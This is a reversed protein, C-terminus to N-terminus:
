NRPVEQADKCTSGTPSPVLCNGMPGVGRLAFSSADGDADAVISLAAM